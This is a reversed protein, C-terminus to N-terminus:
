KALAVLSLSGARSLKAIFPGDYKRLFKYMAPLATVFIAANEEGRLGRATLVFARVSAALLAQRELERYRIRDDKTLVVWGQEGVKYLWLEDPTGQPFHDDHTEVKAGVNRLAQAVTKRGLSADIFFIVQEPPKLSTASQKKSKKKQGGM